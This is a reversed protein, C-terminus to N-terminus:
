DAARRWVLVRISKAREVPDPNRPMYEEPEGVHELAWRGAAELAESASRCGREDNDWFSTRQTAVLVGGPRLVSAVDAFFHDFHEIYSLVGCCVAAHVPRGDDADGNTEDLLFRLRQALHGDDLSAELTGGDYLGPKHAAVLDLSAGSIDVGVLRARVGAARLAEGALGTGCGLDLVHAAPGEHRVRLRTGIDRRSCRLVEHAVRRDARYGWSRLTADYAPAWEDYLARAGDATKATSGLADWSAGLREAAEHDSPTTSFRRRGAAVSLGEASANYGSVSGTKFARVELRPFGAEALLEALGQKKKKKKKKKGSGAAAAAAAEEEEGEQLVAAQARPLLARDVELAARGGALLRVRLNDAVGLGLRGRVIEEAAEVARLHDETARVGFALRSRLCPAAAHAHNPLGLERAAQRVEDKTIDALPSRVDFDRAAVLGVRTPDEADDANTGNYLVVRRGGHPEAAAADLVAGLRSYLETKCHFCATGDNAVYEPNAGERTRVERLPIGIHAAVARARARAAEGLGASVGLVALSRGPFARHVLAAVVSSDVGGSFAVLHRRRDAPPEAPPAPPAAAAGDGPPLAPAPARASTAAANGRVARLLAPVVRRSTM